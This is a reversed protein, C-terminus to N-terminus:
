RAAPLESPVIQRSRRDPRPLSGSNGTRYTGAIGPGGRTSDYGLSNPRTSEPVAERGGSRRPETGLHERLFRDLYHVPVRMGTELPFLCEAVCAGVIPEAMLYSCRLVDSTIAEDAYAAAVRPLLSSLGEPFFWKLLSQVYRTRTELSNQPLQSILQRQLTELSDADRSLGAALLGETFLLDQLAKRDAGKVPSASPAEPGPPSTEAPSHDTASAPAPESQGSWLDRQALGDPPALGGSRPPSSRRNRRKSDM